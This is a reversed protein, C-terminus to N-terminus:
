AEVENTLAQLKSIRDMIDQQKTLWAARAHALEAQLAQVQAAALQDHPKITVTVEAEGILTCPREGKSLDSESLWLMDVVRAYKGEKIATVMLDVSYFEPLWAPLTATIKMPANV